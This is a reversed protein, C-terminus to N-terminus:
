SYVVTAINLTFNTELVASWSHLKSTDITTTDITNGSHNNIYNQIDNIFPMGM